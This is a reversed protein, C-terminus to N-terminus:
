FFMQKLYVPRIFAISTLSSGKSSIVREKRVIFNDLAKLIMESSIELKRMTFDPVMIKTKTLQFKSDRCKEWSYHKRYYDTSYSRRLRKTEFVPTVKQPMFMRPHYTFTKILSRRHIKHFEKERLLESPLDKDEM